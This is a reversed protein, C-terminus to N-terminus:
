SFIAPPVSLDSNGTDVIAVYQKSSLDIASSNGYTLGQGLLAWTKMPNPYNKFTKLGKAGNVIQTSNYGGFLAYPQDPMGQQNLSFSVVANEILGHNKLSWLFHKKPNRNDKHPSLGLIGSFEKHLGKAEYLSLFRFTTCKNENMNLGLEVLSQTGKTKGLPNLCVSDETV